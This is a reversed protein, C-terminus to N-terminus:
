CKKERFFPFLMFFTKFALHRFFVFLFFCLFGLKGKRLTSWLLAKKTVKKTFFPFVSWLLAAYIARWSFSSWSSRIIVSFILYSEFGTREWERDSDWGLCSVLFSARQLVYHWHFLSSFVLWGNIHYLIFGIWVRGLYFYVWYKLFPWQIILNSM